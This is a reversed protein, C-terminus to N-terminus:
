LSGRLYGYETYPATCVSYLVLLLRFIGDVYTKEVYDIIIIYMHLEPVWFWGRGQHCRDFARDLRLFFSPFFPAILVRQCTAESLTAGYHQLVELPSPGRLISAM